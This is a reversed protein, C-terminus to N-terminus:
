AEQKGPLSHFVHLMLVTALIPMLLNLFPVLTMLTIALGGAYAVRKHQRMLEKARPKGLHYGAVSEFFERGLLYSNLIISALFGIGFLYLPLILLNLFLASAAFALDHRFDAWFQPAEKRVRDPYYALEVKHIIREQCIGAVLIVLPPLMFWGAVGTLLGVLWNVLTDLWGTQLDVLKAILWTLGTISVGVVLVALGGALGVLGLLDAKKVSAFTKAIPLM